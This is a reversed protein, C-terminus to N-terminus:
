FGQYKFASVAGALAALEIGALVVLFGLVLGQMVAGARRLRGTGREPETAM